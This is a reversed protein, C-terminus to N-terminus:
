AGKESRLYEEFKELCAPMNSRGFGIRFNEPWPGYVTGPLLLVGAREVLERCFAEASGRKLSPFAIPGAKPRRWSFTDPFRGFFGDLLELNRLVIERNRRVIRDRHKLAVVSLFEAPASSCITTYDKFSALRGLLARDRTAIWGIRLGALGFSKSMVGLSLGREDAECWAPLRDRPDYELFRYVEDSFVVFGHKRSLRALEEFAERGMNYGTPNHPCNVIVLRTDPRLLKKLDDPDLEWGSSEKAEWATVECGAARAVEALSQYCPTHAIVHDGPRLLVNMAGFIAEEAGAYVLVQEPGIGEYLGAIEERLRPHGLSETYGLWLEGFAERAGPEMALLDALRLSECDSCCLLHPASFEHEAFYRELEFDRIRM